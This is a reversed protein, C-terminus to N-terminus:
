SCEEMDGRANNDGNSYGIDYIDVFMKAVEDMDKKSIGLELLRPVM